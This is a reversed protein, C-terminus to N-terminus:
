KNFIQAGYEFPQDSIIPSNTIIIVPQESYIEDCICVYM